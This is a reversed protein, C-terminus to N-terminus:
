CYHYYVHVYKAPDWDPHYGAGLQLALDRVHGRRPNELGCIAVCCGQMCSTYTRVCAHGRPLTVSGCICHVLSLFACRVASESLLSQLMQVELPKADRRPAKSVTAPTSPWARKTGAAAAAGGGSSDSRRVPAPALSRLSATAAVSQGALHKQSPPPAMKADARSPQTREAPSTKRPAGRSGDSSCAAKPRQEAGKQAPPPASARHLPAQTIHADRPPMQAVAPASSSLTSAAAAVAPQQPALSTHTEDNLPPPAHVVIGALGARHQATAAGSAASGGPAGGASAEFGECRVRLLKFPLRGAAASLQGPCSQFLRSRIAAKQARAEAEQFRASAHPQQHPLRPYRLRACTSRSTRRSGGASGIGPPVRVCATRVTRFLSRPVLTHWVGDACQGEVAVFLSGANTIAISGIESPAGLVELDVHAAGGRFQWQYHVEERLLCSAGHAALESSCGAVRLAVRRAGSMRYPGLPKIARFDRGRTWTSM